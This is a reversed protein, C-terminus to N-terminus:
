PHAVSQAVPGAGSCGNVGPECGARRETASAHHATGTAREALRIRDSQRRNRGANRDIEVRQRFANFVARPQEPDAAARAKSLDPLSALVAAADDPQVKLESLRRRLASSRQWLAM